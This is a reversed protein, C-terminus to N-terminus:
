LNESVNDINYYCDQWDHLISSSFLHHDSNLSLTSNYSSGLSTITVVSTQCAPRIILTKRSLCSTFSETVAYSSRIPVNVPVNILVYEAFLPSGSKAKRSDEQSEANVLATRVLSAPLAHVSPNLSRSMSAAHWRSNHHSRTSSQKLRVSFRERYSGLTISYRTTVAHAVWRIDPWRM